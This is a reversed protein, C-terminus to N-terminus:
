NITVLIYLDGYDVSEKQVELREEVFSLNHKGQYPVMPEAFMCYRRVVEMIRPDDRECLITPYPEVNNTTLDEIKKRMFRQKLTEDM